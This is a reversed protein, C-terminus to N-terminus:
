RSDEEMSSSQGEDDLTLNPPALCVLRVACFVKVRPWREDGRQRFRGVGRTQGWCWTGDNAVPCLMAPKEVGVVVMFISDGPNGIRRDDPRTRYPTKAAMRSSARYVKVRLEDSIERRGCGNGASL